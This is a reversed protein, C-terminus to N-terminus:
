GWYEIEYYDITNYWEDDFPNEYLESFYKKIIKDFDETSKLEREKENLLWPYLVEFLIAGISQDTNEFYGISLGTERSIINAIITFIKENDGCFEAEIDDLMALESLYDEFNVNEISEDDNLCQKKLEFIEKVIESEQNNLSNIHKKFFNLISENNFLYRYGGWDEFVKFGRGYTVSSDMSM